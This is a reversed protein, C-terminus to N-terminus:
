QARLGDASVGVQLVGAYVTGTRHLTGATIRQDDVRLAASSQLQVAGAAVHRRAVNKGAVNGGASDAAVDHEAADFTAGGRCFRAAAIHRKFVDARILNGGDGFATVYFDMIHIRLAELEGGDAAVDFTRESYFVIEAGMGAAAADASRFRVARAAHVRLGDRTVDREM